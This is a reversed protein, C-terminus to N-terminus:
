LQLEASHRAELWQTCHQFIVKTRPEVGQTPGLGELRRTKSASSNLFWCDTANDFIRFWPFNLVLTLLPNFDSCFFFLPVASFMNHSLQRPGQYKGHYLIKSLAVSQQNKFEEALLVRRNSPRPSTPPFFLFCPIFAMNKFDKLKTTKM